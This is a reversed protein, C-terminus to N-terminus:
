QYVNADSVVLQYKGSAAKILENEAIRNVEIKIRNHMRQNLQLLLKAEDADSFTPLPVINLIIKGIEHQIIQSYKLNKIGYFALSLATIRTGDDLIIVEDYRGDVSQIGYKKGCKCPSSILTVNDNVFYRILPFSDNILSTTVIGNEGFENLSYMNYEHYMGYKCHGYHISREVNGYSEVIKGQFTQQIKAKQFAYLNESSTFILPIKIFYGAESLLNTMSYATSPYACIAVPKFETLLKAYKKINGPSLLYSSLYLVNEAKNYYHLTDGNLKGRLSVVRDGFNLGHSM